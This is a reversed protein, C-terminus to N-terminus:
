VTGGRKVLFHKPTIDEFVTSTEKRYVRVDVYKPLGKRTQITSVKTAFELAEFETKFEKVNHFYRTDAYQRFQVVFSVFIENVM